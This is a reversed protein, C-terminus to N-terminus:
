FFCPSPHLYMYICLGSFLSLPLSYNSNGARSIKKRQSDSTALDETGDAKRKSADTMGIGEDRSAQKIPVISQDDSTGITAEHAAPVLSAGQSARNIIESRDLLSPLSGDLVSQQPAHIFKISSEEGPKSSAPEALLALAPGSPVAIEEIQLRHNVQLAARPTKLKENHSSQQERIEDEPIGRLLNEIPELAGTFLYDHISSIDDSPCALGGTFVYDDMSSTDGDSSTLSLTKDTASQGDSHTSQSSTAALITNSPSTTSLEKDELLAHVAIGIGQELQPDAVLAKKREHDLSLSYKVAAWLEMATQEMSEEEESYLLSLSLSLFCNYSITRAPCLLAHKFFCVYNHPHM